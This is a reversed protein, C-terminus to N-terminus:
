EVRTFSIFWGRSHTGSISHLLFIYQLKYLRDRFFLFCTSLNQLKILKSNLHIRLTPQEWVRIIALLATFHRNILAVLKTAVKRVCRLEFLAFLPRQSCQVDAEHPSKSAVRKVALRTLVYLGRKGGSMVLLFLERPGYFFTM